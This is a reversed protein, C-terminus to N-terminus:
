HNPRIKDRCVGLIEVCSARAEARGVPKGGGDVLACGIHSGSRSQVVRQPDVECVLSFYQEALKSVVRSVSLFELSCRSAQFQKM